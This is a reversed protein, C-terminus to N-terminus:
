EPEAQRPNDTKIREQIIRIREDYDYILNFSQLEEEPLKGLLILDAKSLNRVAAMYYELSLLKGQTTSDLSDFKKLARATSIFFILIVGFSCFALAAFVINQEIV